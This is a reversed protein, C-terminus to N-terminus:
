PKVATLSLVEFHPPRRERTVTEANAIDLGAKEAFKRLEKESFGLNVHGYADVVSKHEHKGLSSLLLRGGRRLVRAAEAVAQAPKASYTLAHMLV